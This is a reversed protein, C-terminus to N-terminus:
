IDIKDPHNPDYLVKIQSGHISCITSTNMIPDDNEKIKPKTGDFYEFPAPGNITEVRYEFGKDDPSKENHKYRRVLHMGLSKACDIALLTMAKRLVQSKELTYFPELYLVPFKQKSQESVAYFFRIIARSKITKKEDEAYIIQNKGDCPYSLLCKNKAPDGAPKQCSSKAIM